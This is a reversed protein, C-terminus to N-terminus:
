TTQYGATANNFQEAVANWTASGIHGTPAFGNQVQFEKVANETEEDFRGNVNVAVIGGYRSELERLMFQLVVVPFGISGPLIEYNLPYTPFVDVSVPKRISELSILYAAYIAEFTRQDAIGTVPIGYKQQFESVAKKTTEAYVGDVPPASIGRDRLSLQRLYTQLNRIAESRIEPNTEM